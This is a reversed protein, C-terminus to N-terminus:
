SNLKSIMFKKYEDLSIRGDRDSDLQEIFANLEDDSIEEQAFLGNLEPIKFVVSLFVCGKPKWFSLKWKTCILSGTETRIQM